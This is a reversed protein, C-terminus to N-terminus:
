VRRGEHQEKHPVPVSRISIPVQASLEPPVPCETTTDKQFVQDAPTGNLPRLTRQIIHFKPRCIKFLISSRYLDVHMSKVESARTSRALFRSYVFLSYPFALLRFPWPIAHWVVKMVKWRGLRSYFSNDKCVPM